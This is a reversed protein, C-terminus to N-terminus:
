LVGKDALTVILCICGYMAAIMALGIAGGNTLFWAMSNERVRYKKM